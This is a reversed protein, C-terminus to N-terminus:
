TNSTIETNPLVTVCKSLQMWLPLSSMGVLLAGRPFRWYIVSLLGPPDSCGAGLVARAWRVVAENVGACNLLHLLWFQLLSCFWAAQRCPMHPLCWLWWCSSEKWAPGDMLVEGPWAPVSLAVRNTCSFVDLLTLAFVSGAGRGQAVYVIPKSRGVLIAVKAVAAVFLTCPSHECLLVAWAATVPSQLSVLGPSTTWEWSWFLRHFHHPSFIVQRGRTRM